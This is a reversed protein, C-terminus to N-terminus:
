GLIYWPQTNGAENRGFNLKGVAADTSGPTFSNELEDKTAYAEVSPGTEEAHAKTSIGPLAPALSMALAATLVLATGKKLRNKRKM